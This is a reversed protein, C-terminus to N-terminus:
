IESIYRFAESNLFESANKIRRMESIDTCRVFLWAIAKKGKDDTDLCSMLKRVALKNMQFNVGPMNGTVQEYFKIMFYYMDSSANWVPKTNAFLSRKYEPPLTWDFYYGLSHDIIYYCENKQHKKEILKIENILEKITNM